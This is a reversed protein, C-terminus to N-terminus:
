ICRYKDVPEMWMSNQRVHVAVDPALKLEVEYGGTKPNSPMIFAVDNYAHPAHRVLEPAGSGFDVEYHAFRSHNSAQFGNANKSGLSLNYLYNSPSKEMLYGVKAYYRAHYDSANQDLGNVLEYLLTNDLDKKQLMNNSFSASTAYGLNGMYDIAEISPVRPRMNISTTVKFTTKEDISRDFLSRFVALFPRNFWWDDNAKKKAQAIVIVLYATIINNITFNENSAGAKQLRLRFAEIAESPIHFFCCTYDTPEYWKKILLGRREPSMWALWRSVTSEASLSKADVTNQHFTEDSRMAATFKRNYIFESIALPERKDDQPQQMWRAVEAWLNMFHVFGYGDTICNGISAYLLVGTNNKFRLIHFSAPKIKGGSLKIPVPVGYTGYLDIPLKKIDFGAKEMDSYSLDCATDTYVPMNLNNKDIDVYMRSSKDTKIHGALIPFEQLARYFASDLIKPPMFENSSSGPSDNKYWYGLAITKVSNATDYGDLYIVQSSVSSTFSDM